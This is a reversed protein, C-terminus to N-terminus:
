HGWAARSCRRDWVQFSDSRQPLRTGKLLFNYKLPILYIRPTYMEVPKAMGELSKRHDSSSFRCVHKNCISM